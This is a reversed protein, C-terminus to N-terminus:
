SQHPSVRIYATFESCTEIGIDAGVNRTVQNDGNEFFVRKNNSETDGSVTFILGLPSITHIRTHAHM